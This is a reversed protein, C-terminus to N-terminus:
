HKVEMLNCLPSGGGLQRGHGACEDDLAQPAAESRKAGEPSL